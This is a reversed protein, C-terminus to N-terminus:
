VILYSINKNKDILEDVFDDYLAPNISIVSYEEGSYVVLANQMKFKKVETIDKIEIKEVFFGTRKVIYGNRIKYNSFILSIAAAIIILICLIVTIWLSLSDFGDIRRKHIYYGDYITVALSLVIMAIFIVTIYVPQKIRYSKSKKNLSDKM